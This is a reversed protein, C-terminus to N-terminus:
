QIGSGSPRDDQQWHYENKSDFLLPSDIKLGGFTKMEVIVFIYFHVINLRLYLLIVMKLFQTVNKITFNGDMDGCLMESDSLQYINISVIFLHVLKM